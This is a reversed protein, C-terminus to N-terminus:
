RDVRYEEALLDYCVTDVLTGDRLRTGRRERGVQVFGNAEIVRRSATNEEAAFVIVRQLGLGGDDEPVFAHRLVLGCAQTMVGRGRAAPHTWYGIEAERGPKLDFLSINALLEDTDPDAVVWTLGRGTAPLEGRSDAYQQATEVTYPQPMQGLWYATRPDACAEVIRPVDRDQHRRLVIGDGIIRPVELWPHRPARVDDALLVGVWADRLEGQRPMWQRLTADFSFGLNWALKRSAWDGKDAWWIVTRLQQQTFGWDLLLELARRLLGRGRAWPRAGFAIEARGYGKPRLEVTGCLRPCGQDDAAEVAFGWSTEDRWGAPDAAQEHLADADDARRARLTVTGDTLRPVDDPFKM